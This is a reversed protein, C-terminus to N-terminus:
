HRVPRMTAARIALQKRDSVMPNRVAMSIGRSRFPTLHYSRRLTYFEDRGCRTRARDVLEERRISEERRSRSGEGREWEKAFTSQAREFIIKKRVSLQSHFTCFSNRQCNSLSFESSKCWTHERALKDTNQDTMRMISGQTPSQEGLISKLM